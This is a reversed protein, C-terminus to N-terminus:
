QNSFWIELLPSSLAPNALRFSALKRRITCDIESIISHSSRFNNRHIRNNRESWIFYITGQWALLLLKRTHKTGRYAQVDLLTADWNRRPSFACRRLINTWIEWSFACEFFLHSRSEPYSNCLLCHSDTQLGWQLMRDRTPCRNLVMLWTRVKHKPIEGGFWVEKHWLVTPEKVRLLDYTKRTSYVSEPSAEPSWVMADAYPTIQLSSLCSYIQVQKESRAPPLVWHDTDWLEALTSSSRIGVSLSSEGQLYDRIKGM